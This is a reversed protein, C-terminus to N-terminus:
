PTLSRMRARETETLEGAFSLPLKAIACAQAFVVDDGLDVGGRVLGTTANVTALAVILRSVKAATESAVSHGLVTTAISADGLEALRAVLRRQTRLATQERTM